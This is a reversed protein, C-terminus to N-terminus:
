LRIHAHKAGGEWWRKWNFDDQDPRCTELCGCEEKTLHVRDRALLRDSWYRLGNDLVCIQVAEVRGQM